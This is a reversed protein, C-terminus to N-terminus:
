PRREKCKRSREKHHYYPGFLRTRRVLSLAVHSLVKRLLWRGKKAIKTRGRYYGSRRERLNLGAFRYLQRWSKFDSMPGIEAVLRALHFKAIVGHVPQPLNQDDHERVEDYLREMAERAEAKRQEVAEFDQYLQLLRIEIVEAHAKSPGSRLSDEATRRLRDISRFQIRPASKRMRARFAKPSAELIRHPNAGFAHVLARGSASYLFESRFDYDPFLKNLEHHLTIKIAKQAEEAATYIHHWERLLQYREEFVRRKMLYGHEAVRHIARPDRQDTKGSDGFELVRMKAVKEGSAWATEFGKARAIRLISEHYTGTPEVVLLPQRMATENESLLKDLASEISRTRNPFAKEIAKGGTESYLHLEDKGVDVAVITKASESSATEILKM